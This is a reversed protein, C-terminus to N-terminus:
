SPDGGMGTDRVGSMLAMTNGESVEFFAMWLEHDEMKAVRHPAANFISGHERLKQTKIEIDEVRFYLIPSGAPETGAEPLSLMLRVGACNSFSMGPLQVLFELGLNETYFGIARDLRDVNVAIQGIVIQEGGKGKAEFVEPEDLDMGM